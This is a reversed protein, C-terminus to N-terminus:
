PTRSPCSDVRRAEVNVHNTRWCRSCRPRAVRAADVAARVIPELASQAGARSVPRRCSRRRRRLAGFRPDHGGVATAACTPEFPTRSSGSGHLRLEGGRRRQPARAPAAEAGSSSARARAYPSLSTSPGRRRELLREDAVLDREEEVLVRALVVPARGVVARRIRRARAARHRQAVARRLRCPSACSPRPRAARARARRGRQRARAGREAARRRPRRRRRRSPAPRPSTEMAASPADGATTAVSPSAATSGVSPAFRSACSPSVPAGGASTRLSAHPPGGGRDGRQAVLEARHADHERGRRRRCSAAARRPARRDRRSSRRARRAATPRPRPPGRREHENAGRTAAISAFNQARKSSAKSRAGSSNASSVARPDNM